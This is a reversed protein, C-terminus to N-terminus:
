CVKIMTKKIPYIHIICGDHHYNGNDSPFEKTGICLKIYDKYDETTFDNEKRSKCNYVHSYELNKYREDDSVKIHENFIMTCILETTKIANEKTECLMEQGQFIGYKNMEEQIKRDRFSYDIDIKWFAKNVYKM